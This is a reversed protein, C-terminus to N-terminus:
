QRVILQGLAILAIAVMFINLVVSQYVKKYLSIAIIGISGTLNLLQYLYSRAVIVEFSVLAFAAILAVPGYWGIIELWLPAPPQKM